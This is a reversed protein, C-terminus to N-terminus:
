SSFPSLCSIAWWDNMFELQGSATWGAATNHLRGSFNAPGGFSAWETPYRAGHRHLLHLGTVRCTHPAEPGANIGFSGPEVTFWPSLNGWHKFIDFSPGSQHSSSNSDLSLPSVLHPAGSHVPYAPATAVLGPEAGTPTPGAHGVHTPFLSPFVNTPSAPPFQHVQTSGADPSAFDPNSSQSHSSSSLFTLSYHSCLLLEVLITSIIGAAYALVVHRTPFSRSSPRPPPLRDPHDALLAQAEPDASEKYSSSAMPRTATQRYLFSFFPWYRRPPTDQRGLM